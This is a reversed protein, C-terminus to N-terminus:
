ALRFLTQSRRIVNTFLVDLQQETANEIDRVIRSENIQLTKTLFSTKEPAFGGKSSPMGVKAHTHAIAFAIGKAKVADVSFKLKVWNILATIYQSKGGGGTGSFPINTAKIGTDVFRGYFIMRGELEIQRVSIKVKHEISDILTGTLKHGQSILETILERKLFDGISELTSEIIKLEAM